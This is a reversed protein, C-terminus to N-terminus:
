LSVYSFIMHAIITDAYMYIIYFIHLNSYKSICTIIYMAPSLPTSNYQYIVYMYVDAQTQTQTKHRHRHIYVHMWIICKNVRICM